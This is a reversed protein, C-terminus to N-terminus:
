IMDGKCSVTFLNRLGENTETTVEGTYTRGEATYTGTGGTSEESPVAEKITTETSAENSKENTDKSKNNDCATLLLISFSIALTFIKKM